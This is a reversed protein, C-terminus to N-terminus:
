RKRDELKELVGLVEAMAWGLRQEEASTLASAQDVTLDFLEELTSGQFEGRIHGVLLRVAAQRNPVRVRDPTGAM